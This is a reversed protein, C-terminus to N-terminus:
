DCIAVVVVVGSKYANEILLGEVTARIRIETDPLGFYDDALLSETGNDTWQFPHQIEFGLCPKGEQSCNGTLQYFHDVTKYFLAQHTTGSKTISVQWIKKDEWPYLFEATRLILASDNDMVAEKQCTTCCIKDLPAPLDDVETTIICPTRINISAPKSSEVGDECLTTILIQYMAGAQLGTLIASTATVTTDLLAGRVDTPSYRLRFQTAGTEAKWDLGITTFTVKGAKLSTPSAHECHPAFWGQCSQFLILLPLMLRYIASSRSRTFM